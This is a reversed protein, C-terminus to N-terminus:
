PWGYLSAVSGALWNGSSPLLTVRDIATTQNWYGYLNQMTIASTGTYVAFVFARKHFTTNAYDPILIRLSTASGAASNTGPSFSANIQPDSTDRSGGVVTGSVFLSQWQYNNSSDNNFRLSNNVDANHTSRLSCILELSQFSGPISTFDFTATDSELVQRTILRVSPDSALRRDSLLRSM